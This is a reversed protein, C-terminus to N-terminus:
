TPLILYNIFASNDVVVVVAISNIIIIIIIIIFIHLLLIVIHTDKIFSDAPNGYLQWLSKDM